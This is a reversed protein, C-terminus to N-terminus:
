FILPSKRRKKARNYKRYIGDWNGMQSPDIYLGPKTVSFQVWLVEEEADTINDFWIWNNDKLTARM